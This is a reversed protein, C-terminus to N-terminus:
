SNRKSRQKTGHTRAEYTTAGDVDFQRVYHLVEALLFRENKGLIGATQM